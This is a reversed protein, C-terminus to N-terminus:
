HKQEERAFTVKTRRWGYKTTVSNSLQCLQVPPSYFTDTGTGGDQGQRSREQCVARRSRTLRGKSSAERDIKKDENNNRTM